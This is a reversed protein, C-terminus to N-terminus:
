PRENKVEEEAKEIADYYEDGIVEVSGLRDRHSTVEDPFRYRQAVYKVYNPSMELHSINMGMAIKIAIQWWDIGYAMPIMHSSLKGGGLRPVCELVYVVNDKILLDLKLACSRLNFQHIIKEITTKIKAGMKNGLKSPVQCGDEILYPPWRHKKNYNRDANVYIYSQDKFVLVETSIEWGEMYEQILDYEKEKKLEKKTEIFKVGQAASLMRPKIVCPYKDWKDGKTTWMPIPIGGKQLEGYRYQKDTMKLATKESPGVLGLVDCVRGVIHGFETAPAMCGDVGYKKNMAIAQEEVKDADRIDVVSWYDSHMFGAANPNGDLGMVGLGLEKAKEIAIIQDLGCGIFLINNRM